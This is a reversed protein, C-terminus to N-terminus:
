QELFLGDAEPLGHIVLIKDRMLVIGAEAGYEFGDVINGYLAIVALAPDNVPIGGAGREIAIGALFGQAAGQFFQDNGRFYAVEDDGIDLAPHFLANGNGGAFQHQALLVAARGPDIGAVGHLGIGVALRFHVAQVHVDGLALQGLLAQLFAM